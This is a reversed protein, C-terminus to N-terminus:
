RPRSLLRGMSVFLSLFNFFSFVYRVPKPLKHCKFVKGGKGVRNQVFFVPGGPMKIRVLLAVVLLVPWLLLLGLLAVIRDFIFKLLM